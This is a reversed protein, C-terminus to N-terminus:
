LIEKLKIDIIKDFVAKHGKKNLHKGEDDINEIFDYGLTEEITDFDFFKDKNTWYFAYYPINQIKYLNREISLNNLFFIEADSIGKYFKSVERETCGRYSIPSCICGFPWEQRILENYNEINRVHKKFNFNIDNLNSFKAFRIHQSIQYFIMDPVFNDLFTDILSGSVFNNSGSISFNYVEIHPYKIQIHTPWTTPRLVDHIQLETNHGATHSDGVCLIKM